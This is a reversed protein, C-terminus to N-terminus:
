TRKIFMLNMVDPVIKVYHPSGTDLIFDSHFKRVASVDKMKLSIIGDTDIEAEHEGDSSCFIIYMQQHIGLHYAFKVMCRGGNGCM